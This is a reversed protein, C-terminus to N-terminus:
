LTKLRVLGMSSSKPLTYLQTQMRTLKTGKKTKGSAFWAKAENVKQDVMAMTTKRSALCYKSRYYSHFAQVVEEQTLANELEGALGGKCAGKGFGSAPASTLATRLHRNEVLFLQMSKLAAPSLQWGCAKYIRKVTSMPDAILSDHQVDVFKSSLQPNSERFALAKNLHSSAARLNMQDSAALNPKGYLVKKISRSFSCWSDVVKRPDRHIWIVTADPYTKFLAEMGALHCASNLVWREGPKQWQLHQLFNRHFNYAQDMRGEIQGFFWNTYGTAELMACLTYSRGCQEFIVSDDYPSDARLLETLPTGGCLSLQADLIDQAAVVRPDQNWSTCNLDHPRYSGDTCYPTVMEAFRPTRTSSDLSLLWQLLTSSTRDLGVIFVPQQISKSQIQPYMSKMKEFYVANEIAQKVLGFTVLRGAFSPDSKELGEQLLTAPKLIFAANPLREINNKKVVADFKGLVDLKVPIANSKYFHTRVNYLFSRKFVERPPPWPSNRHPLDDLINRTSIPLPESSENDAFWYRRWFQIMPIYEFLPSDRGREKIANLYEEPTGSGFELGLQEFWEIFQTRVVVRTDVLHYIWHQRKETLSLEVMLQCIVDAASLGTFIIGRPMIGEQLAAATIPINVNDTHTYGTEYTMCTVPLRYITVPLGMARAETLIIEGAWKSWPYGMRAAPFFQMERASPRCNETLEMNAYERHFSAFYAPFLGLTSTYHLSKLKYTTCLDVVTKLSLVNVNRLRTYSKFLNIDAGNHYVLDIVQCLKKFNDESMGFREECLDGIVPVIREAYEPKWCEAEECADQIRQMAHEESKARVLCYVLLKPHSSLQLLKTVHLRGIFGTVGTLLVRKIRKIPCPRKLTFINPKLSQVVTRIDQRPHLQVDGSTLADDLLSEEMTASTEDCEMESIALTTETQSDPQVYQQAALQRMPTESPSMLGTWAYTLAKVDESDTVQLDALAVSVDQVEMMQRMTQYKNCFATVYMSHRVKDELVALLWQSVPHEYMGEGDREQRCGDASRQDAQGTTGGLRERIYDAIDMITPNEFLLTQPPKVGTRIAITNRFEMMGLSDLDLEMLPVDVAIATSSSSCSEQALAVLLDAMAERSLMAVGRQGDTGDCGTLTKAAVNKFFTPVTEYRQLFRQWELSACGVVGIDSGKRMCDLMVRLGLENSIGNMGAKAMHQKMDAAMGQETWPGWQISQGSLGHSRRYQVLSDLSANAASYTTQCFNGLLASISSFMVFVEMDLSLEEAVEHLNWGGEVKPRYVNKIKEDDQEGIVADQLVGAAHFVGQIQPLGKSMIHQFAKKVDAKVGVDCRVTCVTVNTRDSTLCKWDENHQVAESPQGSRSMLVVYQAGEEVLWRTVVLGLAGLGGTVVYTKAVDAAVGTSLASPISIIVKGIHQARQLYRFAAVGGETPHYIDFIKLPLPRLLQGEVLRCVRQLMAGFWSPSTEAMSDVAVAEYYVDSRLRHVDDATWIGRKGLEMFRGGNRLTALSQPIYEESLCNLVVDVPCGSMDQAFQEVNRSSTIVKIGLSEVYSRKISSGVTAIVEAGLRQCCQIACLGVGGSAAHILVTEGAKVKALDVLALEVTVAVVPLAAAEDYSSCIPMRYVLDSCTTVYSKLCGAALGFVADGVRHKSAEGGVAVVTGSSDAGPPGPDGPYLDMVNLVDRFNLGIARVRLECQGESPSVRAALPFPKLVLNSLAGRTKMELHVWGECKMASAALRSVMQVGSRVVLETETKLALGNIVDFIQAPLMDVSESTSSMDPDLDVYRVMVSTAEGRDLELRASRCLGILGGHLPQQTMEEDDVRQAGRTVVLLNDRVDTRAGTLRRIVRLVDMACQEPRRTMSLSGLYAVASWPESGLVGDLEMDSQPLDGILVSAHGMGTEVTRVDVWSHPACLFLAAPDSDSLSTTATTNTLYCGLTEDDLIISNSTASGGDAGVSTECSEDGCEIWEITWLLHKPIEAVPALDLKRLILKKLTAVSEGLSTLISIHVVLTTSDFSELTVHSWLDVPLVTQVVTASEVGAPVFVGSCGSGSNTRGNSSSLQDVLVAAAQISGDLISPHLHFGMEAQSLHSQHLKALAEGQGVYLEVIPRFRPRYQLGQTHLTHYFEPVHVVDTIRTRLEDVSMWSNMVSGKGVVAVGGGQVHETYEGGEGVRWSGLSFEGSPLFETHLTVTEDSSPIVLPARIELERLEVCGVSGHNGKQTKLWVGALAAIMEIFCAGPMLPKGAIVHDSLLSQVAIPLTTTYRTAGSDVVQGADTPLMPHEVKCIAFSQHHWRVPKSSSSVDGLVEEALSLVRDLGFVNDSPPPTSSTTFHNSMLSVWSPDTPLTHSVCQKGMTTLVVDSGVEIFLKVGATAATRISDMFRVPQTIQEAWYEGRLIESEAFEGSVSSIFSVVPRSLDVSTAIDKIPQIDDSTIQVQNAIVKSEVDLITLVAKVSEEAGCIVTSKPGNVAAIRVAATAVKDVIGTQATRIAATTVQESAHCAVATLQPRAISECLKGRVAVIRLADELKMIGSVVAAAFEGVNHGLVLNPRIGKSQLLAAGAVELAVIAAESYLPTNILGVTEARFKEPYMVHLLPVPLLDALLSNCQELMERFIPQSEFLELGMAAYQSGHGTFIFAVHSQCPSSSSPLSCKQPVPHASQVITHCNAGGFGFSSVGIIIDDSEIEMLGDSTKPFKVNFNRVDIMPNLETLHINAPFMKQKTILLGKLLGAIGAAGELHGMNAKVSGVVLERKRDNAFVAKLGGVEIPDGLATGTGHAEIGWVDSPQMGGNSLAALIVAQQASGTPATLCAARGGHNVASGRIRGLPFACGQEVHQVVLAVVGEGRVYGNSSKDFTKCRGDPSMMGAKCFAITVHPALMLNVGAVVASRCCTSTRLEHLAMHLAVLSSSCATDITISPGTVGFAYALRNSLISPSHNIATYATIRENRSQCLYAWDNSCCGVFTGVDAKYLKTIDYGASHLAEYSVELLQRQQPDMSRADSKSIKFFDPDFLEAGQIFGGERIYMKGEADPNPDYYNDVDWRDNPITCIADTNSKLMSWYGEVGTVGGPLRCSAGAVVIDDTMSRATSIVSGVAVTHGNEAVRTSLFQILENVNPHEFMCTPEVDIGLENSIQESFEIAGLSDIGLELLPSDEDFNDALGLASRAAERVVSAVRQYDTSEKSEKTVGTPDHQKDSVHQSHQQQCLPKDHDATCPRDNDTSLHPEFTKLSFVVGKMDDNMLRTKTENRRIKGSTTKPISHSSLLWIESVHLGVTASVTAAMDKAIQGYLATQTNRRLGFLKSVGGTPNKRIEAAIALTESGDREVSFAAVCGQRILQSQEVAEEIDQPYYNRGRVILLDKVRGTVFLEDKHLFGLDGTRLYQPASCRGDLYTCAAYFVEATQEPMDFYGLAKSPSYVWIEGQQKDGVETMTEVDVIRVDSGEFPVGCGILLRTSSSPNSNEDSEVLAIKGEKELKPVDVRIVTPETTYNKRGTVILTHEALGYAPLFKEQRYGKTMMKQSFRQVTAARIPEAGCLLGCTASFDLKDFVHDPMKRLALDFAFNPSPSASVNYRSLCDLWIYPKRIFDLPSMFMAQMGFFVPTLLGGILGMDHYIPLWSFVRLPNGRVRRSVDNRFEFFDYFKEFPVKSLSQDCITEDDLISPFDIARCCYHLNHLLGGHTVMVGKPTSTSGSTFQLFALSDPKVAAPHFVADEISSAEIENTCIWKVDRWGSNRHKLSLLNAARKYSTVTLAVHAKSAQKIVIFRDIDQKARSPDPPYVPVPVIGASLCAFFVILFDQGPPYCMIVRDGTQLGLKKTLYVATVKVTQLFKARTVRWSIEGQVDCWYIVDENPHVAAWKELSNFFPNNPCRRTAYAKWIKMPYEPQLSQQQTDSSASHVSGGNSPTKQASDM